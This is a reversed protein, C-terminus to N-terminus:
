IKSVYSLALSAPKSLIFQSKIYEIGPWVHDLQLSSRSVMLAILGSCIEAYVSVASFPVSSNEITKFLLNFIGFFSCSPLPKKFSM